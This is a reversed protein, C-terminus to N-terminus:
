MRRQVENLEVWFTPIFWDMRIMNNTWLYAQDRRNWAGAQCDPGGSSRSVQAAHGNM